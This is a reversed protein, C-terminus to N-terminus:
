KNFKRKNIDIIKFQNLVSDKKNNNLTNIKSGMKSGMQDGRPSQQRPRGYCEGGGWGLQSGRYIHM